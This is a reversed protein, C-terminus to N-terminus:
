AELWRVLNDIVAAEGTTFPEIRLLSFHQFFPSDERTVMDELMTRGSGSVVYAARRHRQWVSRILPLPDGEPSRSLASLEQFEDVAVLVRRDLSEALREPLDLCLKRPGMIALWRSTGRRLDAVLDELRALERDRDHFAVGAIPQNSLFM